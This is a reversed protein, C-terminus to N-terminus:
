TGQTRPVRELSDTSDSPERQGLCGPGQAPPQLPLLLPSHWEARGPFHTHQYLLGEAEGKGMHM